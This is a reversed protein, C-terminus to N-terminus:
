TIFFIDFLVAKSRKPPTSDPQLWRHQSRRIDFEIPPTKAMSFGIQTTLPDKTLNLHRDIEPM